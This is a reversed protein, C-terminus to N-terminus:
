HILHTLTTLKTCQQWTSIVCKCSFFFVLFEISNYNRWFPHISKWTTKCIYDVNVAWRNPLFFNTPLDLLGSFHGGHRIGMWLKVELARIVIFRTDIQVNNPDIFVIFDFDFWTMVKLPTSCGLGTKPSNKCKEWFSCCMPLLYSINRIPLM